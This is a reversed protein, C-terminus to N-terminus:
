ESKRGTVPLWMLLDNYITDGVKFDLRGIELFGFKRYCSIAWQADEWVSLWVGDAARDAAFHTAAKLLLGGIGFRQHDPSVYVQSLEFVRGAPVQEPKDRDRIKVFGAVADGNTALLYQCGPEAMASRVAAESFYDELHAQLDDPESWSEYAGRFSAQGIASLEVIDDITAKRVAIGETV